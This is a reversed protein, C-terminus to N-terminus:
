KQEIYQIEAYYAAQTRDYSVIAQVPHNNKAARIITKKSSEDLHNMAEKKEIREALKKTDKLSYVTDSLVTKSVTEPKRQVSSATAEHAPLYCTMYAILVLVWLSGLFFKKRKSFLTSM